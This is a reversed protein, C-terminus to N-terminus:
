QSALGSTRNPKIYVEILSNELKRPALFRDQLCYYKQLTDRVQYPYFETLDPIDEFLVLDYEGNKVRECFLNVEKQFMGINLHYWLPQNALPKYHMSQALPTLESMNLVKLNEKKAISSKLLRTLGNKTELPMLVKDFGAVPASVWPSHHHNSIEAKRSKSIGLTNVAYGWYGSSFCVCLILISLAFGHVREALSGLDLANALLIFGFVHFYSMHDTPLPSTARTVVAQLIMFVSIFILITRNRDSFFLSDRKLEFAMVIAFFLLYVKEDVADSLFVNILDVVGLRSNHPAQGYNFFYLFDHKVFPLVVAALIFFYAIVFFVLPIFNRTCLWHYSLLLVCLVFCLAGVDQKTFITLFAFLASFAVNVMGYTPTVNSLFRTLFYICALEYVVVSHNYWPWFNYIVYTLCFVLLSLTVLAPRVKLNYLTGRLSLISIVNLLVQSKVLASFSPGFIKFFLTPIIWYGFGLPMGFDKYPIQGLYLRYAGEWSLFINVRYPLHIALPVLVFLLSITIDVWLLQRSSIYKYQM